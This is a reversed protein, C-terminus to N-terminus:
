ILAVMKELNVRDVEDFSNLDRSDVDLIALVKGDKNPVPVVIESRSLASCGIHGPFLDVDPVVVSERGNIGAWCVGTDKKLKLCALPGQYPGVVLNEGELFYFGTWFYAPMKHHLLAVMTSMRSWPNPVSDILKELQQYIREYRANKSKDSM